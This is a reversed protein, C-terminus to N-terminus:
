ECNVYMIPNAAGQPFYSAVSRGVYTDQLQASAPKGTFEWRNPRRALDETDRTAYPTMGAQHWQDIEYVARIVGDVVAMALKAHNRREGIVWTGRTAEYLATESMGDHYSRRIRILIAPDSVVVAEM